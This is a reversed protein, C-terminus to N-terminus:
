NRKIPHQFGPSNLLIKKQTDMREIKDGYKIGFLHIMVMADGKPDTSYMESLKNTLKNLTM